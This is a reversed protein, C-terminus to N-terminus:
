FRTARFPKAWTPSIRDLRHRPWSFLQSGRLTQVASSCLACLPGEERAESRPAAQSVAKTITLINEWDAQEILVPMIRRFCKLLVVASESSDVNMIRFLYSSINAQVDNAIKVTNVLYQVDEPLEEFTLIENEYLQELFSQAGSVDALVLRRSVWILIRKVGAFRRVLIPNDPTEVNLERLHNLEDFIYRSTPLM